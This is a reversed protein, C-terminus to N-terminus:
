VIDGKSVVKVSSFLPLPEAGDRGDQLDVEGRRQVVPTRMGGRDGTDINEVQRGAGVEPQPFPCGKGEPGDRGGRSRPRKIVLEERLQVNTESQQGRLTPFPLISAKGVKKMKESFYDKVPDLM